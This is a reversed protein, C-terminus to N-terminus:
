RPPPQLIHDVIEKDSFGAQRLAQVEQFLPVTASVAPESKNGLSELSCALRNDDAFVIFCVRHLWRDWLPLLSAPEGGPLPEYRSLHTAAGLIVVIVVTVVVRM